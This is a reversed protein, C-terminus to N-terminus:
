ITVEGSRLDVIVAVAGYGGRYSNATKRATGINDTRKLVTIFPVYIWGNEDPVERDRYAVVAFTRDTRTRLKMGHIELNHTTAM